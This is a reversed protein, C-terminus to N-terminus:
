MRLRIIRLTKETGVDIVELTVGGGPTPQTWWPLCSYSNEYSVLLEGESSELRLEASYPEWAIPMTQDLFKTEGDLPFKEVWVNDLQNDNFVKRVFDTARHYGEAGPSRYFQTM